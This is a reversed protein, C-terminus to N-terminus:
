KTTYLLCVTPMGDKRYNLNLEGIKRGDEHWRGDGYLLIRGVGDGMVGVEACLANRGIGVSLLPYCELPSPPHSHLYCHPSYAAFFM